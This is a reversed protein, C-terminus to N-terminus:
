VEAKDIMLLSACYQNGETIKSAKFGICGATCHRIKCQYCELCKSDTPIKYALADVYNLFYSAIDTVSEFDFINVKLYDSMGFCRVAQLNPLIDVVPFCFSKHGILSSDQTPYKKVYSELWMREEDTWVCYPPKNCDYYPLVQISDMDHFFRLLFAKHARFYALVDTETNRSFDPATISIRLRHLNYRQLLETVYSYDFGDGYLNVGINIRDKMHYNLILDDVNDRIRSFIKDGIDAPSNWNVLIRFKPHVLLKIYKDLLIGNTYITAESVMSNNIIRLLIDEFQPHLTPEGGILGVRSPGQKTLYSIAKDFNELTIDTSSSNVFENAFCYPCHLNCRYTLMINPM